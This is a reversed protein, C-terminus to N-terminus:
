PVTVPKIIGYDPPSIHTTEPRDEPGVTGNIVTVGGQQVISENVFITRNGVTYMGPQAVPIVFVGEANSVAQRRYTFQGSPLTVQTVSSVTTNPRTEGKIIGGTVLSFVKYRGEPSSYVLRFNRVGPVDDARSGNERQLRTGLASENTVVQPTTVVFQVNKFRLRDYWGRADTSTAFDTYWRQSLADKESNGNTFYNYMRVRGWDSFVNSETAVWGQEQRYEGMWQATEYQSEPVTLQSIKVPAQIFGLSGVLLFLLVIARITQGSPREVKAVSEISNSLIVPRRAADIREAVHVFAVGAFVAAFPSLEGVFRVQTVALLVFYWAYVVTPLTEVSERVRVTCWVLYPVALVFSFGFLLLWGFSSGFLGGTEAIGGGRLLEVTVGETLRTSFSPVVAGLGVLGAVLGLIEVLVLTRVSLGLKRVSEGAVIMGIGGASLLLPASAVITTHWGLTQHITWVAAGAITIGALVPGAVRTPSWGKAVAIPVVCSLFLGLPILLLPGAEWALVQGTVGVTTGLVALWTLWSRRGSEDIAERVLLTVSLATLTLWLYDFAHHDAFGLSTRLAHGPTVALLGVAALGVRRDATASSALAYVFGASLVAAVVPYLALVVGAGMDTGGALQTLSWLTTVLLPEGLEVSKPLSSSGIEPSALLQEVWYRYYYPDNGSLVIANSRFVSGVSVIRVVVTLLLVAVFAGMEISSVDPVTVSWGTSETPSSSEGNLTRRVVSPNSVRYGDETNEVVGHSVLEGFSGSDIDVKDFEFPEEVDLVTEVASELDPRETLLEEVDQGDVM